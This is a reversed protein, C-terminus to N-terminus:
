RHVWDWAAHPELLTLVVDAFIIRAGLALTREEGPGLLKGDVGTGHRSSLDLL